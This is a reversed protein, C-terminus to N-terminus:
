RNHSNLTDAPLLLNLRKAILVDIFLSRALAESSLNMEGVSHMSVFENIQM